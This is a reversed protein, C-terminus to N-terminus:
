KLSPVFPTRWYLASSRTTSIESGARTFPPASYVWNGLMGGDSSSLIDSRVECRGWSQVMHGNIDQAPISALESVFLVNYFGRRELLPAAVTNAAM